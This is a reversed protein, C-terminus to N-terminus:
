FSGGDGAPNAPPDVIGGDLADAFDGVYDGLQDPFNNEVLSEVFTVPINNTLPDETINTSLLGAFTDDYVQENKSEGSIGPQFSYELRKAGLRWTYHGGLPNIDSIDQDRRETIIFYNGARGHSRTSGYETM